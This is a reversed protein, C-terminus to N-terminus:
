SWILEMHDIESLSQIAHIVSGTNIMPCDINDINNNLSTGKGHCKESSSIPKNISLEM